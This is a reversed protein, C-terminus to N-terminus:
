NAFLFQNCSDWKKPLEDHRFARKKWGGQPRHIAASGGSCSEAAEPGGGVFVLLRRCVFQIGM